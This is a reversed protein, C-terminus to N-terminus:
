CPFKRQLSSWMVECAEGISKDLEGQNDIALRLATDAAVNDHAIIKNRWFEFDASFRAHVLTSLKTSNIGYSSGLAVFTLRAVEYRSSTDALQPARGHKTAAELVKTNLLGNRYSLAYKDAEALMENFASRFEQHIRVNREHRRNSRAGLLPLIIGAIAAASTTLTTLILAIDQASWDTAFSM